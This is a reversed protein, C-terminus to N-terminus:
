TILYLIFSFLSLGISYYAFHSFGFHNLIVLLISISFYGGGFAAIGSLIYGVFAAVSDVVVGVSVIGIIDFVCFLVIAPISLFVAWNTFHKYEVGRLTTYSSIIGIRSIGPFISLCGLIGIIIGDLASMSRADKNGHRSHTALLLIFANLILLGAVSLLKYEIKTVIFLLTSGFCLAFAATKLLRLDYFFISDSRRNKKYLLPTNHRERRIHMLYERYAILIALLVGIHVLFEQLFNRSEVGFMYRLLIQHARSSVPLIETLGSVFGYIISAVISM